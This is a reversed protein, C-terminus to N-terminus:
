DVQSRIHKFIAGRPHVNYQCVRAAPRGTPLCLRVLRMRNVQNASVESVQAEDAIECLIMSEVSAVANAGCVRKQMEGRDIGLLLHMLCEAADHQTGVAFSAHNCVQDVWSALPQAIEAAIANKHKYVEWLSKLRDGLYSAGAQQAELDFRFPRCHLLCQTVANLFCTNGVNPLGCLPTQHRLDVRQSPLDGSSGSSAGVSSYSLGALKALPERAVALSRKALLSILQPENQRRQLLRRLHEARFDEDAWAPYLDLQLWRLEAEAVEKSVHPKSVQDVNAPAFTWRWGGECKEVTGFLKPAEQRGLILPQLAILGFDNVSLVNLKARVHNSIMKYM